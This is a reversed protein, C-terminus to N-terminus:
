IKYSKVGIKEAQEINGAHDDYFFVKDYNEMIAVLVIRKEIEIASKKDGVCYIEKAHIGNCNLFDAIANKVKSGRATLIYVSHNETYVQKALELTELAVPNIITEFDSYDFSEGNALKYTNYEAPTLQKVVEGNFLVKVMCSTRALTDDFDFVFAKRMNINDDIKM